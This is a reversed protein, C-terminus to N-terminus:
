SVRTISATIRFTRQLYDALAMAQAYSMLHVEPKGNRVYQLQYLM